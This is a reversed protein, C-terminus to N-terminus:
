QWEEKLRELEDPTMTEIGNEKCDEIVLDILRSMQKTDFMSSGFYLLVNTCGNLKSEATDTLWGAGNHEWGKCLNSVAENQVCVVQFNGGVNRVYERYLSIKDENLANSLENLLTWFYANADKSRKPKLEKIEIEVDKENLRDFLGRLDNNTEITLISKGFRNFTLDKLKAKFM